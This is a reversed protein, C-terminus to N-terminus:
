YHDASPNEKPDAIDLSKSGDPIHAIGTYQFCYTGQRTTIEYSQCEATTSNTLIQETSQPRVKLFRARFRKQIPNEAAQSDRRTKSVRTKVRVSYLDTM